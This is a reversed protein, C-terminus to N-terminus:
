QGSTTEPEVEIRQMRTGLRPPGVTIMVSCALGTIKRAPWTSGRVAVMLEVRLRLKLLGM